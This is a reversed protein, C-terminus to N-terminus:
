AARIVSALAPKQADTDTLLAEEPSISLWRDKCRIFANTLQDATVAVSPPLDTVEFPNESLEFWPHDSQPDYDYGLDTFTKGKLGVEEPIFYEGEDLCALIVSQQAKTLLGDIVCDSYVKYNDADRYLFSIRTNQNTNGSLFVTDGELFESYQPEAKAMKFIEMPDWSDSNTLLAELQTRNDVGLYSQLWASKVTFQTESVPNGADDLETAYLEIPEEGELIPVVHDQYDTLAESITNNWSNCGNPVLGLREDIVCYGTLIEAGPYARTVDSQFDFVDGYSGDPQKNAYVTQIKYGNQFNIPYDPM